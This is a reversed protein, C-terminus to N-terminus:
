TLFSHLGKCDRDEATEFVQLLEVQQRKQPVPGARELVVEWPWTLTDPVHSLGCNDEPKPPLGFRGPFTCLGCHSVRGGCVCWHADLFM